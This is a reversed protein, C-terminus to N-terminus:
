ETVIIRGTMERFSPGCLETCRIEYTGAREPRLPVVAVDGPVVRVTLREAGLDVSLAHPVDSASVLLRYQVGEQLELVPYWGDVRGVLYVEVGPPPAVIPVGEYEGVQYMTVFTSVRQEFVSPDERLRDVMAAPAGFASGVVGYRLFALPVLALGLAALPFLLREPARAGRSLRVTRREPRTSRVLLGVLVAAYLGGGAVWMIAGGLRQDALPDFGWLAAAEEYVRYLPRPALTVAACVLDTAMWVAFTLLMKATARLRCHAPLAEALTVWFLLSGLFFTLHELEHVLPDRVAVEYLPPYHWLVFPVTAALFVVAPQTSVALLSRVQHQQAFWRLSRAPLGRLIVRSPQGLVLLPPAVLMLLTHQVMHVSFRAGNGHDPPGMLAVAIVELGALYALVRWRSVRRRGHRPAVYWAILYAAAATVLLATLPPDLHWARMLDVPATSTHLVPLLPAPM